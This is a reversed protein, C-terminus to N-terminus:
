PVYPRGASLLFCLTASWVAGGAAVWGLSWPVPLLLLAGVAGLTLPLGLLGLTWQRLGVGSFRQVGRFALGESVGVLVCGGLLAGLGQLRTLRHRLLWRAQAGVGRPPLHPAEEAVAITLLRQDREAVPRGIWQLGLWLLGCGCLVLLTLVPKADHM